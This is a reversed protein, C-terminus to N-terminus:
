GAGWPAPKGWSAGGASDSFNLDRGLVQNRQANILLARLTQGMQFDGPERPPAMQM